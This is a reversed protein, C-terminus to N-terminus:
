LGSYNEFRGLERIGIPKCGHLQGDVITVVVGKAVVPLIEPEVQATM